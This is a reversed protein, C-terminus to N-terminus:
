KYGEYELITPTDMRDYYDLATHGQNKVISEHMLLMDVSRISPTLKVKMLNADWKVYRLAYGAGFLWRCERFERCQANSPLM